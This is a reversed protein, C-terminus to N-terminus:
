LYGLTKLMSGAITTASRIEEDPREQHKGISSTHARDLHRRFARTDTRDLHNLIRTGAEHPARMFREYQIRLVRETSDLSEFFRHCRRVMYTWMWIARGYQSAGLFTKGQKEEVWWPVYRDDYPRGIRMEASEFNTLKQDTLVDYSEVLSHAVDRGDRYIYIMKAEPLADHGFEPALSLFPEKYLFWDPRTRPGRRVIDGIRRWQYPARWWDELARFRSNYEGALYIDIGRKLSGCLSQYEESSLNQNVLHFVAVPILQGIRGETGRLSSLAQQLYTTGSRPAGFVLCHNM